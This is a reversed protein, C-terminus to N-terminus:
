HWRWAEPMPLILYCTHHSSGQRSEFAHSLARRTGRNPKSGHSQKRWAANAGVAQGLLVRVYFAVSENLVIKKSGRPEARCSLSFSLRVRNM